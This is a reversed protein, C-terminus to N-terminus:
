QAMVAVSSSVVLISLPICVHVVPVVSVPAVPVAARVLVNDVVLLLFSSLEVIVNL